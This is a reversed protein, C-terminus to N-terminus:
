RGLGPDRYRVDALQGRWGGTGLGGGPGVSPAAIQEWTGGEDGWSVSGDGSGRTGSGTSNM